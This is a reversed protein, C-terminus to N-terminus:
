AALRTVQVAGDALQEALDGVHHHHTLVIVQVRHSLALLAQLTASTRGDDFTQLVDDAIFPLPTTGSAYDELAAVRLALYLQDATGESLQDLTKRTVGDAELAVMTQGDRADEIRVGAQAGGTITQFVAGIRALLPQSAGAAQRDIAAQLLAHSAHLVLAEEATRALM